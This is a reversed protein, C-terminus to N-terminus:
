KKHGEAETIQPRQGRSKKGEVSRKQPKSDGRMRGKKPKRGVVNWNKLMESLRCLNGLGKFYGRM